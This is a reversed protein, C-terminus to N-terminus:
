DGHTRLRRGTVGRRAAVVAEARVAVVEGDGASGDRKRSPVLEEWYEVTASVQLALMTAEAGDDVGAELAAFSPSSGVDIRVAVTTCNASDTANGSPCEAPDYLVALGQFGLATGLPTLTGGSTALTRSRWPDSQPRDPLELTATRLRIARMSASTRFRLTWIAWGGPFVPASGQLTAQVTPPAVERVTSANERCWRQEAGVFAEIQFPPLEPCPPECSPAFRVGYTGPAACADPGIPARVTGAVSELMGPVERSFDLSLMFRSVTNQEWTGPSDSFWNSPESIVAVDTGPATGFSNVWGPGPISCSGVVLAYRGNAKLTVQALEDPAQHAFDNSPDYEPQNLQASALATDEPRGVPAVRSARHISVFCSYFFIGGFRLRIRDLRLNREGVLFSFAASRDLGLSYSSTPTLGLSDYAGPRLDFGPTDVELDFPWRVDNDAPVWPGNEEYTHMGVGVAFGNATRLLFGPVTAPYEVAPCLLVIAYSTSPQLVFSAINPLDARGLAPRAIGEPDPRGQILVGFDEAPPPDWSPPGGGPAARLAFDCSQFYDGGTPRAAFRFTRIRSPVPGTTFRFAAYLLQACCTFFFINNPVGTLLNIAYGRLPGSYTTQVLEASGASVDGLTPALTYTAKDYTANFGIDMFSTGGPEPALAVSFSTFGVTEVANYASHSTRFISYMEEPSVAGIYVRIDDAYGSWQDTSTAAFKYTGLTTNVASSLDGVGPAPFDGSQVGDVFIRIETGTRTFAIHYWKPTSPTGFVNGGGADYFSVDAGTTIALEVNGFGVGFSLKTDTNPNAGIADLLISRDDFTSVHPWVWASVAFDRTGVAALLGDVPIVRDPLIAGRPPVAGPLPVIGAPGAGAITGRCPVIGLEVDFALREFLVASRLTPGAGYSCSQQASARWFLAALVGAALLLAAPRPLRCCPRHRPM